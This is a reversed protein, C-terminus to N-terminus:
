LKKFFYNPNKIIIKYKGSEKIEKIVRSIGIGYPSGDWSDDFLIFGGRELFEHCNKFDRKVYDYLHSGDIYCFSIPGGLKIPRNLVDQVEESNRWAKFFDNSLLEITYPLDYRSFLRISRIYTEKIFKGYKLFSISSKGIMKKDKTVNYEWKDCTILPNHVKNREKYYTLMNTSLGCFSGIEIIPAESPLHGIAYNFCYLNGPNCGPSGIAWYLRKVYNDTIDIIKRRHPLNIFKEYIRLLLSKM